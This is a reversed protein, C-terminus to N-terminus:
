RLFDDLTIYKVLFDSRYAHYDNVGDFVMVLFPDKIRDRLASYAVTNLLPHGTLLFFTPGVIELDRVGEHIESIVRNLYDRTLPERRSPSLPQFRVNDRFWTEILERGHHHRTATIIVVTM